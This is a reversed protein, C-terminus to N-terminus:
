PQVPEDQCIAEAPPLPWMWLHGYGYGRKFPKAEEESLRLHLNKYRAGLYVKVYGAPDDEIGVILTVPGVLPPISSLNYGEDVRTM